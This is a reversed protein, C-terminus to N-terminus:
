LRTWVDDQGIRLPNGMRAPETKGTVKAEPKPQRRDPTRFAPKTTDMCFWPQYFTLPGFKDIIARTNAPDYAGLVSDLRKIDRGSVFDICM